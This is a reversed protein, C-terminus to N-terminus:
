RRHQPSRFPTFSGPTQMRRRWLEAFDPDAALASVASDAEAAREFWMRALADIKRLFQNGLQVRAWESGKEAAELYWVESADAPNPMGEAYRDIWVELEALEARQLWWRISGCHLFM